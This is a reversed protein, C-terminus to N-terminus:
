NDEQCTMLCHGPVETLAAAAAVLKHFLERTPTYLYAATSTTHLLLITAEPVRALAQHGAYTWAVWRVRTMM